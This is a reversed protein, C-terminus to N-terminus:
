TRADKLMDVALEVPGITPWALEWHDLVYGIGTSPFTYPLDGLCGCMSQVNSNLHIYFSQDSPV